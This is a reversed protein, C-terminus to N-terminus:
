LRMWAPKELDAQGVDAGYIVDSAAESRCKDFNPFRGFIAGVVVKPRIKSTRRKAQGWWITARPDGFKVRNDPVVLGM